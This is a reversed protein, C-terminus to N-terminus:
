LPALKDWFNQLDEPLGSEAEMREGNWNFGLRAAHLAHRPLWLVAELEPTWGTEIFRLYCRDDPGYLKDGVVPHGIHSLHVRIQHLRGTEPEAEVLSVAGGPHARTALRRFRTRCPYGRPVVGQKVYIDSPGHKILRDLPADIEGSDPPVGLVLALYGKSIERRMMMKGLVSAAAPNRSALVLGSTDRDLRNVVSVPEGPHRERIQDLLTVTGDPRTPHVLLGPPKSLALWDPHERVVHLPPAPPFAAATV